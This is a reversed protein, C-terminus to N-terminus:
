VEFFFYLLNLLPSLWRKLWLWQSFDNCSGYFALSFKGGSTDIMEQFRLNKNPKIWSIVSWFDIYLKERERTIFYDASDIEDIEKKQPLIWLQIPKMQLFVRCWTFIPTNRDSVVLSLSFILISIAAATKTNRNLCSVCSCIVTKVIKVVEQLNNM